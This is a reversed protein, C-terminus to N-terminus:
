YCSKVLRWVGERSSVLDGKGGEMFTSLDFKNEKYAPSCECAWVYGCIYKM